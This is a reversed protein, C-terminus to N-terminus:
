APSTIDEKRFAVDIITTVGTGQPSFGKRFQIRWNLSGPLAAPISETSCIYTEYSEGPALLKGLQQDKMDWDSTKSHRYIPIETGTPDILYQNSYDRQQDSKTVWRLLLNADLPAIKQDTSINTFRLWLKIVPETPPRTLKSEPSYYTFELPEQIIKFPEVEINGFRQKQGLVLTHGPPLTANVPVYTLEGEAEQPVDPLSELHHPNVSNGGRMLLYLAIITVASAYSALLILINRSGSQEMAVPATTPTSNAASTTNSDDQTESSNETEASPEAQEALVKESSGEPPTLTNAGLPEESFDEESGGLNETPLVVTLDEPLESSNLAACESASLKRGPMIVTPGSSDCDRNVPLEDDDDDFNDDFVSPSEIFEETSLVSERRELLTEEPTPLSTESVPVSTKFGTDQIWTEESSDVAKKGASLREESEIGINEEEFAEGANVDNTQASANETEDVAKNM